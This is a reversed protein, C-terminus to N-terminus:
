HRTATSSLAASSARTRWQLQVKLRCAEHKFRDHYVAFNGHASLLCAHSTPTLYARPLNLEKRPSTPSFIDVNFIVVMDGLPGNASFLAGDGKRIFNLVALLGGMREIKLEERNCTCAEREQGVEGLTRTGVSNALQACFCNEGRM